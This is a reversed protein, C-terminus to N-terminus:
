AQYNSSITEEWRKERGTENDYKPFYEESAVAKVRCDEAVNKM